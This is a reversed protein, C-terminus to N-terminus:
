RRRRPDIARPPRRRGPAPGTNRTRLLHLARERPDDPVPPPILGARQFAATVGALARQLDAMYVSAIKALKTTMARLQEVQEPSLPPIQPPVIGTM